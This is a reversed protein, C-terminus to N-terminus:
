KQLILKRVQINNGATLRYLYIGSSLGEANWRVAHEGPAMTENLLTTTKEGSLNYVQLQVPGQFPLSFRITTEHNFPNPYNQLLVFAEPRAAIELAVDTDGAIAFDMYAFPGYSWFYGTTLPELYETEFPKLASFTYTSNDWVFICLGIENGASADIIYSDLDIRAEYQVHGSSTSMNQLTETPNTWASASMEDPWIGYMSRYWVTPGDNWTFRLMGDHGTGAAPWERNHDSDIFLSFNDGNDLTLDRPNDVALYLHTGTSMVYMIVDGSGGPYSIVTTEAGQWESSNITGDITPPSSTWGSQGTNGDLTVQASKEASYDSEGDSYVATVVYYYVDNTYVADRYCTAQVNSAVRQYSGGSSTSRYIHYGQPARTAPAQWALPIAQHFGSLAILTSPTPKTEAQGLQRFEIEDITNEEFHTDVILMKIGTNTDTYEVTGSGDHSYLPDTPNTDRFYSVRLYAPQHIPIGDTTLKIRVYEQKNNFTIVIRGRPDPGSPTNPSFALHYNLAATNLIMMDGFAVYFDLGFETDILTNPGGRYLRYGYVAKYRDEAFTIIHNTVSGGGGVNTGVYDQNTWTGGGAYGLLEPSFTWGDKQPIVIVGFMAGLLIDYFGNADTETLSPSLQVGPIPTGDSTRIHGSIHATQAIVATIPQLALTCLLLVPIPQIFRKCSKM